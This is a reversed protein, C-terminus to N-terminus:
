IIDTINNDHAEVEIKNPGQLALITGVTNGGPAQKSYAIFLIEPYQPFVRICTSTGEPKFNEIVKNDEPSFVLIQGTSDM